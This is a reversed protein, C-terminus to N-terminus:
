YQNIERYFSALDTTQAFAKEAFGEVAKFLKMRRISEVANGYIKWAGNHKSTSPLNKMFGVVDKLPYGIFLGVEHPYEKPGKAAEFRRKLEELCDAMTGAESYGERVLWRRNMRESLERELTERNYFLVLSSGEEVRLEIYDLKLTFYIDRRYLCFRLGQENKEEYCHRVRLLEAPKLGRRVAATKVLLFKLLEKRHAEEVRVFNIM